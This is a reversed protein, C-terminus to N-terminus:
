SLQLVQGVSIEDPSTIEPNLALIRAMPVGAVNAIRFLSEGPAVTWTHHLNMPTEDRNGDEDVGLAQATWWSIVDFCPCAKAPAGTESILDRHGIVRVNDPNPHLSLFRVIGTRLTELQVAMLNNEPKEPDDERVGGAMSIGFSRGNWGPGCDGVHAGADGIPRARFGSDHDEWDGNRRIVAHYGCGKWGLGKHLDDVEAAGWDQSPKTATVHVIVHDYRNLRNDPKSSTDLM